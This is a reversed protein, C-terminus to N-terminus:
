KEIKEKLEKIAEILIGILNSYAVGLYKGETAIVEPVIQQVEQAIVGMSRKNNNQNTYYVGRLNSVKDLASNITEIESKLRSDSFAIIDGSAYIDGEVQLKYGPSVTGIGVNGGTM